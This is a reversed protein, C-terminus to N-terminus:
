LTMIDEKREDQNPLLLLLFSLVLLLRSKGTRETRM